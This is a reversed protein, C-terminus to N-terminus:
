LQIAAKTTFYFQIDANSHNLSGTATGDAQTFGTWSAGGDLSFQGYGDAFFTSGTFTYGLGKEIGYDQYRTDAPASLIIQYNQGQALTRPLTFNYTGWTPTVLQSDAPNGDLAEGAPFVSAPIQGQELIQGSVTALTVTLPSSGSVRIVRVALSTVTRDGGSVTFQERVEAPGSIDMPEDNWSGIYGQGQTTGDAYNLQFIPTDTAVENVVTQSGDWYMSLVAMDTDPSTPQRPESTHWVCGTDVSVFNADADADANHWHLHYLIGQVLVPPNPFSESRLMQGSRPNQITVCALPDAALGTGRQTLPDAPLHRLTGDDPYICAELAGGTGCGYGDCECQAGACGPSSGGKKYVDFWVFGTAAGSATARFRFDADGQAVQHNDLVDFQLGAGYFSGPGTQSQSPKVVTVIASGAARNDEVSTATIQVPADPVAVPATYAGGATITGATSDGGIIGNVAWVVEQNALGTLTIAFQLTAGAALSATAPTVAVSAPVIVIPANATKSPDAMSTAQITVQTGLAVHSPAVYLGDPSITGLLSSSVMRTASNAGSGSLSWRVSGNPTGSVTAVFQQSQAPGLTARGPSVGVGIVEADSFHISSNLSCGAPLLLGPLFALM